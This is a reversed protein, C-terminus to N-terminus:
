IKKKGGCDYSRAWRVTVGQIQSVWPERRHPSAVDRFQLWLRFYQEDGLHCSYPSCCHFSVSLASGLFESIFRDWHWKTWWLDWMSQSFNLGSQVSNHLKTCHWIKTFYKVQQWVIYPFYASENKGSSREVSQLQFIVIIGQIKDWWVNIRITMGPKQQLECVSVNHLM